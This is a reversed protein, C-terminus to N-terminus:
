LARASRRGPSPSRSKSRSPSRSPQRWKKFSKGKFDGKFHKRGRDQSHDKLPPPKPPEGRFTEPTDEWLLLRRVYDEIQRGGYYWLCCKYWGVQSVLTAWEKWTARATGTSTDFQEIYCQLRDGTHVFDSTWPHLEKQEKIIMKMHDLVKRPKPCACRPMRLDKYGKIQQKAITSPSDTLPPVAAM